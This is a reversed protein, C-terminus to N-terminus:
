NKKDYNKISSIDILVSDSKEIQYNKAIYHQVISDKGNRIEIEMVLGRIENPKSLNIIDYYNLPISEKDSLWVSYTKINKTRGIQQSKMIKVQYCDLGLLRKKNEKYVTVETETRYDKFAKSKEYKRKGNLYLNSAYKDRTSPIYIYSSMPNNVRVTDKFFYYKYVPNELTDNIMLHSFKELAILTSPEVLTDGKNKISEFFSTAEKVKDISFAKDVYKISIMKGSLNKVRKNAGCALLIFFAFLLFYPKIGKM